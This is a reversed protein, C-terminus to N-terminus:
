WSLYNQKSDTKTMLHPSATLHPPSTVVLSLTMVRGSLAARNWNMSAKLADINGHPQCLGEVGHADLQPLWPPEAESKWTPSTSGTASPLLLRVPSVSESSTWNHLQWKTLQQQIKAEQSRTFASYTDLGRNRLFNSYIPALSPFFTNFITDM